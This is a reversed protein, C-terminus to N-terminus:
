QSSRLSTAIEQIPPDVMLKHIEEVAILDGANTFAAIAKEFYNIAEEANGIERMIEGMGRCSCGICIDDESANAYSLSQLMLKEAKEFQKLKHATYGQEYLNASFRMSDNPFSTHIIIEEEIFLEMATAFNGTMREVMGLQHLAIHKEECNRALGLLSCGYERAANHKNLFAETYMLGMLLVKVNEMDMSSIHDYCELYLSEADQYNGIDFLEWAKELAGKLNEM